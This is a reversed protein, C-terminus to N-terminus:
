KDGEIYRRRRYNAEGTTSLYAAVALRYNYITSWGTMYEQWATGWAFSMYHYLTDIGSGPDMRFITWTGAGTYDSNIEVYYSSDAYVTANNIFNLKYRGSGNTEIHETSDVFLGSDVNIYKYVAMRINRLSDTQSEILVVGSDLPGTTNCIALASRALSALSLYTPSNGTTDITNISDVAGFATVSMLMIILIVKAM